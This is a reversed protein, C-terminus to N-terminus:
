NGRKMKRRARCLANEAAKPTIHLKRAAVGIRCGEMHLRLVKRELSSLETNLRWLTDSYAEKELMLQEPGPSEAEDSLLVSQNLPGNKKRLAARRATRQANLICTRAYAEFAEEQEPSCSKVARLLGILGEQVADELDLGPSVCGHAGHRVTPMFHAILAAMAADDGSRAAQLWTPDWQKM